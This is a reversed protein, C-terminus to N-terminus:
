QSTDESGVLEAEIVDAERARESDRIRDMIGEFTRPGSGTIHNPKSSGVDRQISTKLGELSVAKYVEEVATLRACWHNLNSSTMLDAVAKLAVDSM